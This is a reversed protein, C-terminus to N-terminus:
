QKHARGDEGVVYRRYSQWAGRGRRREVRIETGADHKAGEVRAWGIASEATWPQGAPPPVIELAVADPDRRAIECDAHECSACPAETRISVRYERVPTERPSV